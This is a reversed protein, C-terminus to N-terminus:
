EHVQRSSDNMVIISNFRIANFQNKVRGKCSSEILSTSVGAVERCDLALDRAVGEDDTEDLRDLSSSVSLVNTLVGVGVLAVGTLM